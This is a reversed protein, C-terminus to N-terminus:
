GNRPATNNARATQEAANVVAPMIAEVIEARFSGDTLLESVIAPKLVPMLRPMLADIFGSFDVTFNSTGMQMEAYLERAVEIMRAIVPDHIIRRRSALEAWAAPEVLEIVVEGDV